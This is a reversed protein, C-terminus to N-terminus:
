FVDCALDLTELGAARQLVDDVALPPGKNNEPAFNAIEPITASSPRLALGAPNAAPTIQSPQDTASGASVHPARTRARGINILNDAIVGLGVWRKM